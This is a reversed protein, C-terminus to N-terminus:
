FWLRQNSVFEFSFSINLTYHQPHVEIRQPTWRTIANDIITIAKAQDSEANLPQEFVTPLLVKVEAQKLQGRTISMCLHDCQLRNHMNSTSLVNGLKRDVTITQDM